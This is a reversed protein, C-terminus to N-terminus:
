SKPRSTFEQESRGKFTKRVAKESFLKSDLTLEGRGNLYEKLAHKAEENFFTAWTRKTRSSDGKPLVTRRELDIEKLALSILEHKRLGTTAYMLFIARERPSKLAAYFKQVDERTPVRKPKFPAHPLRFSEVVEGMRMFDRFFRRLAIILNARTRERKEKFGALYNRIDVDTIGGPGKKVSKFFRRIKQAHGKVTNERLQLDVECFQRFSALLGDVDLPSLNQTQLVQPEKPRLPEFGRGPAM